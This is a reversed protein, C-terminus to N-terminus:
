SVKQWHTDLYARMKKRARCLQVWYNGKTINLKECAVETSYSQLKLQLVSAEMENLTEFGGSISDELESALFYNLLNGSENDDAFQKKYTEEYDTQKMAKITVLGKKSYQRRYFDMIKFRLISTLWTRESSKARFQAQSKLASLFTEQVYDEAAETHPLKSSAFQLLYGYHQEIWREPKLVIEDQKAQMGDM